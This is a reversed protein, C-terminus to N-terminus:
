CQVGFRFELKELLQIFQSLTLSGNKNRVLINSSCRRIANMEHRTPPNNLLPVMSFQHRNLTFIGSSIGNLSLSICILM